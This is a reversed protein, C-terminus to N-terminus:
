ADAPTRELEVRSVLATDLFACREGVTSIMLSRGGRSLMMFDPHEVHYSQGDAMHVTFPIFPVAHRLDRITETHMGAIISCVVKRRLARESM